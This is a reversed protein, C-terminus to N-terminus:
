GALICMLVNCICVCFLVCLCVCWLNTCWGFCRACAGAPSCRSCSRLLAVLRLATSPRQPAVYRLPAPRLRCGWRSHDPRGGLKGEPPLVVIPLVSQVTPQFGEHILDSILSSKGVGAAGTWCGLPFLSASLASCVKWPHTCSWSSLPPLSATLISGVSLSCPAPWDGARWPAVGVVRRGCGIFCRAVRPGPSAVKRGGRFGAGMGDAGGGGGDGVGPRLVYPRWGPGPACPGEYRISRM